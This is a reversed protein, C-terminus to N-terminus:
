LSATLILILCHIHVSEPFHLTNYFTIFIMIQSAKLNDEHGIIRIGRKRNLSALDSIDHSTRLANMHYTISGLHM